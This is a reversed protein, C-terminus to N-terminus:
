DAYIDDAEARMEGHKDQLNWLGLACKATHLEADVKPALEYENAKLSYSFKTEYQDVNLSFDIEPM